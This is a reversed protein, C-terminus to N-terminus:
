KKTGFVTASTGAFPGGNIQLEYTFAKQADAFAFHENNNGKGVITFTVGDNTVSQTPINGAFDKGSVVIADTKFTVGDETINLTSGTGKAVTFTVSDTSTEGDFVTVSVGTYTGVALDRADTTTNNSTSSKTEEKTCSTISGFALGTAIVALLLTIRKM